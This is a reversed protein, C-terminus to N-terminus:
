RQEREQTSRLSQIMDAKRRLEIIFDMRPNDKYVYELRDAVWRLFDETKENADLQQLSQERATTAAQKKAVTYAARACEPM